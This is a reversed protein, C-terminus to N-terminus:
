SSINFKRYLSKNAEGNVFSVMAGVPSSGQLHSNDFLDIHLPLSINLLSKLEELLEIKDSELKSSLFYEDLANNANEKCTVVLEYLNGKTVSYVKSDLYKSLEKVVNEDNIIVEKPEDISCYLQYILESVQEELNGFQEVIHSQKGLLMGNRYILYAISLYGDRSSFSFIDRSVKDSMEVNQNANIHEIADLIVKYEKASEYDQKNSAEIMKAKIEAQKSSNNGRLFSLVDKRTKENVEEDIKNVCPGLCQGLHYYLCPSSPLHNCKRLPFLKNLLDVMEFASSSKPFPGFYIYKSDKNSRKISLIPDGKKNIAIYPYHSNDKLLINYRPMYKHILNMELVLAEKETEVIITEFHDVNSVMKMVKGVQPRLFYQSVRKYLDKAKGVYIVKNNSDFMIYCGPKHKLNSILVKTKENM